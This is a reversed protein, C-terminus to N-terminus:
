LLYILLVGSLHRLQSSSSLRHASITREDVLSTSGVEDHLRPILLGDSFGSAKFASAANLKLVEFITELLRRFVTGCCGLCAPDDHLYKPLLNPTAIM